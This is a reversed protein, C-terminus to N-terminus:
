VGYELAKMDMRSYPRAPEQVHGLGQLLEEWWANRKCDMVLHIRETDNNNEVHHPLCVNLGWCEGAAMSLAKGELVFQAGAGTSVPIHVRIYESHYNLNGDTHLLIRAHAQLKHIRAIHKESPFLDLVEQLYPSADLWQSPILVHRQLHIQEPDPVLLHCAFLGRDSIHSSEIESFANDPLSAIEAALRQHDVTFPLQIATLKPM